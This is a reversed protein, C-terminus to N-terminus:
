SDGLCHLFVVLECHELRLEGPEFPFFLDVVLEVLNFLAFAFKSAPEDGFQNLSDGVFM